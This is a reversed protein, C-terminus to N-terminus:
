TTREPETAAGTSVVVMVASEAAMAPFGAGPLAVMSTLRVKAERVQFTVVVTFEAAMAAFGVAIGWLAVMAASKTTMGPFEGATSMASNGTM